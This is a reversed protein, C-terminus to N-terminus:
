PADPKPLSPPTVGPDAPKEPVIRMDARFVHYGTFTTDNIATAEPPRLVRIGNINGRSRPSAPIVEAEAFTFSIAHSFAISKAPCIYSAGGIEVPGYEMAVAARKIPLKGDLETELTFRRVSGSDPDIAIEGHYGPVTEINSKKPESSPACCYRVTYHSKDKEIKYRFVALPGGSTQEWRLWGIKGSLIDSMVVALLPGFEGWNSLGEIRARKEKKEEASEIVEKGDRYLVTAQSTDVLRFPETRFAENQLSSAALGESSDLALDRAPRLSQFRSIERTAFFNPMKPVTTAVFDIARTLIAKETARDPAARPLIEASPTELFASEDAIALLAQRSKEGPLDAQLQLLRATTLRQKLVLRGIEQATDKDSKSHAGALRQELQAVTVADSARAPVAVIALCVLVALKRM